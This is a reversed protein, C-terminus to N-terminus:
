PSLSISELFLHSPEKYTKRCYWCAQNWERRCQKWPNSSSSTSHSASSRSDNLRSASNRFVSLKDWLIWLTVLWCWWWWWKRWINQIRARMRTKLSKCRNLQPRHDGPIQYWMVPHSTDSTTLRCIPRLVDHVLKATVHHWMRSSWYAKFDESCVLNTVTKLVSANFRLLQRKRQGVGTIM